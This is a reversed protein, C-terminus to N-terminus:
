KNEKFIKRRFFKKLKTNWVFSVSINLEDLSYVQHWWFSPFFLIEGPELICEIYKANRFQPFKDIDPQDINLQSMFPVKSNKPFPYLFSSQKPEFLLIRKRGRVQCLVSEVPDHHLHTINGNTSMWFITSLSLYKDIYDSIEKETIGLWRATDISLNKDILDPITIDPFLEPFTTHIPYQQIYYYQNDKKKNVIWDTFDTFKMKKSPYIGAESDYTFIQHDSVRANIKKEGLVSNLYDLSWLSFAKWEAVIGTFIVPYKYSLVTHKFNELSPKHIREIHSISTQNFKTEVTINM